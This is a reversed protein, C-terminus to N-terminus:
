CWCSAARFLIFALLSLKSAFLCWSLISELIYAFCLLIRLFFRLTDREWVLFTPDLLNLVLLCVFVFEHELFLVYYTCHYFCLKLPSSKITTSSSSIIGQADGLNSAQTKKFTWHSAMPSDGLNHNQGDKLKKWWVREQFKFVWM